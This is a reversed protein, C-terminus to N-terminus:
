VKDKLFADCEPHALLLRAIDVHGHEAAVMLATSGDDDQLNIDAGVDLLMKVMDLRGHSVALMLATQGAKVLLMTAVCALFKSLMLQQLM